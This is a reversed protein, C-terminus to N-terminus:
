KRIEIHVPDFGQMKIWVILMEKGSTDLVIGQRVDPSGDLTEGSISIEATQDGPWRGIVFCPNHIARVESGILDFSIQDAAAQFIYARQETSYGKYVAGNVPKVPPPYNWSLTLTQLSEIPERTFGYMAVNGHFVANDAAALASHSLRDPFRSGRGDSPIQAAPWHNWSVFKSYFGKRGAVWPRVYIGEPFILFPKYRSKMNVWEINAGSLTNEPLGNEWSLELKKFNVGAWLQIDGLTLAQTHMQDQPTEGAPILFQIDQWYISAGSRNNIKRVTVGDPYVTYYEDIWSKHSDWRENTPPFQDPFRYDLTSIFAYRWHIVARAPTNEIIRLHSFRCQKDSMHECCGYDEYGTEVSQDIMWKQNETVFAPGYNPGRWFIVSTPLEDFTVTVDPWDTTRWMNDWLDHYKLATYRAGFQGTNEAVPLRRKQLDPNTLFSSDPKLLDYSAKIQEEPLSRDYIRLEDILGELGVITPFGSAPLKMTNLGLQLDTGSPTIKGNKVIGSGAREGNIYLSVKGNKGSYAAAVHIWENLPVQKESRLIEWSEDVSVMLAIRGYEDVGFFWGRKKWDCQHAFAVWDYPYVGLVTWAEVTLEEELKPASGAPQVVKTFYGDFALATGSVGKKWIAGNGGIECDIGSISEETKDESIQLGEDFRWWAAPNGEPDEFVPAGEVPPYVPKQPPVAPSYSLERIGEPELQLKQIAVNGADNFVALKGRGRILKREIMKDPTFTYIEHTVGDFNVNTFDPMYRWHIVIRGPTNEIIRVYSYKNYRDPRMSPGDGKRPVIEKLTWKGKRTEWFPLYGSERGFVFREQGGFSVVIDAYKGSIGDEFSLRTYWAKFEGAASGTIMLIVLGSIFGAILNKM